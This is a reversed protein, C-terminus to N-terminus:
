PWAITGPRLAVMINSDDDSKGRQMCLTHLERTCPPANKLDDYSLLSKRFKYYNPNVTAWPNKQTNREYRKPNTM